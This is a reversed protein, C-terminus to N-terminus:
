APEERRMMRGISAFSPKQGAQLLSSRFVRGLLVFEAAIFAALLTMTGLVEWLPVGAGLRALMTFPTFIPIWTMAVIGPGTSGQLVGQVIIAFPAVIVLTVPMLYNQADRMSDTMGGIALFIMSVLLYGAVFYYVIAMIIWLSSLPALAPRIMDAIVGQTAFAAGAACLLWVAVMTLGVAVTGILKGYMLANPSVCALVTELLKNSREEIMSQLMWNGSLLLAFQLVYALALPVISQVFVKERGGGGPPPTNVVIAPVIASAASAEQPALGNATLYQTRLDRTLVSQLATMLRARPQADAWLRVPGGRAFDAPVYVAYHVKRRASDKGEPRLIPALAADLTAPAAAAIAPPAPVIEFVREPTEFEPTDADTAPKMQALARARGGEAVFRAVDADTFWRDSQAWLAQPNARELKYRRAHRALATLVDRQEDLEIRQAIARGAGGSRDILMVRETDAESLFRQALPMIAIVLPISLLTVWFGTTATITKFERIAVLLLHQIM